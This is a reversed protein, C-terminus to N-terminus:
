KRKQVQNRFVQEIVEPYANGWGGLYEITFPFEIHGFRKNAENFANNTVSYFHFKVFAQQAEDSWLYQMFADVVPREAASVNRDIVVAPHESFITAQPVVIEVPAGADKMLLGELEYTILADGFGTEFQTRAERASGPTSIVNRWIAQLTQLARVRDPEGSHKESKVLESGYIALISWQAGGSSVPDPHILRVGPKALDAFDLIGKPNGKRVLIVFPTKNVIGKYPLAHWDSTVFGGQKLRQADRDISLIAIDANVGQLIQNTVTESGAFSSTFRVDQNQEQKWKAAFGPYIAKELSEKMISFGYLTINIGGTEAPPKPLCSSALLALTLWAIGSFAARNLTTKRLLVLSSRM